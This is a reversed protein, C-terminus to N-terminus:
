RPENARIPENHPGLNCMCLQTDLMHFLLILLNNFRYMYTSGINNAIVDNTNFLFYCRVWPSVILLEDCKCVFSVIMKLVPGSLNDLIAM